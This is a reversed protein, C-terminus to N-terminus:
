INAKLFKNIIVNDIKGDATITFPDTNSMVNGRKDIRYITGHISGDERTLYDPEFVYLKDKYAFVNHNGTKQMSFKYMKKLMEKAADTAYWDQEMYM